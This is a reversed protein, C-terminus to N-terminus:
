VQESNEPKIPVPETVELNSTINKSNLWTDLIENDDKLEIYKFLKDGSGGFKDHLAPYMYDWKAKRVFPRIQGERDKVNKAPVTAESSRLYNDVIDLYQYCSKVFENAMNEYDQPSKAKPSRLFDHALKIYNSFIEQAEKEPVIMSKRDFFSSDVSEKVSAWVITANELTLGEKNVWEEFVTELSATKNFDRVHNWFSKLNTEITKM